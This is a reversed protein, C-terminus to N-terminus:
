TSANNRDQLLRLMEEISADISRIDAKIQRVDAKVERMDSIAVYRQDGNVFGQM